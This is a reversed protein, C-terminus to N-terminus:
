RYFVLSARLVPLFSSVNIYEMERDGIPQRRYRAPLNFDDITPLVIVRPGTAGGGGSQQAPVSRASAVSPAAM